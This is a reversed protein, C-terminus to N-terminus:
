KMSYHKRHYDNQYKRYKELNNNKWIIALEKDCEKCESKYYSSIRSKKGKKSIYFVIRKYFDSM